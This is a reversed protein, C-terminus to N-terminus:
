TSNTSSKLLVLIILFSKIINQVKDYFINSQLPWDFLELSDTVSQFCSNFTKIIKLAHKDLTEVFNKEFELYDNKGDGINLLLDGQFDKQSFNSYNRYISKKSEECNFTTEIVSYFYTTVIVLGLKM